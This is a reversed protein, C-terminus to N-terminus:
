GFPTSRSNRSQLVQRDYQYLSQNTPDPVRATLESLVEAVTLIRACGQSAFSVTFQLLQPTCGYPSPIPSVDHSYFILWSKRWENEIILERVKACTDLDGYLSNARLLNLDALPGNLGSVIGRSSVVDQGV